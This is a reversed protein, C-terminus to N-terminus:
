TGRYEFADVSSRYEVLALLYLLSIAPLFLPEASSGASGRLSAKLEDFAVIRKQRLEKLVAAAAAIVTRDPHSHKSPLLM